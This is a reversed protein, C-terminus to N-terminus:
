ASGIARAAQHEGQPQHDEDSDRDGDECGPLPEADELVRGFLQLVDLRRERRRLDDLKWM